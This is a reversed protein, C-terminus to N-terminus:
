LVPPTDRTQADRARSRSVAPECSDTPRALEDDPPIAGSDVPEVPEIQTDHTPQSAASLRLVVARERRERALTSGCALLFVHRLV